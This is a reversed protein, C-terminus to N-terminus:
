KLIIKFNSAENIMLSKKDKKVADNMSRAKKNFCLIFEGNNYNCHTKDLWLFFFSYYKSPKSKTKQLVFGKGGCKFCEGGLVHSFAKINGKEELCRTCEVKIM